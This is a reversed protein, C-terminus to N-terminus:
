MHGKKTVLVASVLGIVAVAAILVFVTNRKLAAPERNVKQEDDAKEQDPPQSVAAKVDSLSPLVPALALQSFTKDLSGEWDMDILIDTGM